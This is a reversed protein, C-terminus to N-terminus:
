ETKVEELPLRIQFTTGKGVESTFDLNGAHKEVLISRSIALGQGSGKGVGKTTFFPDFIKAAIEDPIGGGTDAIEVVAENDEVFSRIRIKGKGGGEGIVDGIAHAANVILNLIAQNVDGPHCPVLPLDGLELEVDAVYKFENRAVNITNHISRNLDSPSKEAVDPHAFEKLSVVIDAVRQIGEMSSTFSQPVQEQIFELDIEEEVERAQRSMDPNNQDLFPLTAQYHEILKFIDEFVKRLFHTNDGVYQIPTNIEHAIGAALQGISELKQSLRLDAELMEKEEMEKQLQETRKEVLHELDRLLNTTERQVFWKRTLAHAFQMVEIADFPKKLILLGDRQGIRNVINRWSHDSFATCLVIQVKDDVGIIHEVTEIGDWGPPMRVDVFALSYPKGDKKAQAVMEFGERGQLAHDIQFEEEVTAAPAAEFLRSELDELAAETRGSGSALIKEFDDHISQNDDIILIRSKETQVNM